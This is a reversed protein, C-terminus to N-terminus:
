NNINSATTEKTGCYGDRTPTDDIRESGRQRRPASIAAEGRRVSNSGGTQRLRSSDALIFFNSVFPVTHFYRLPQGPVVTVNLANNNVLSLNEKRQIPKKTLVYYKFHKSDKRSTQTQALFSCVKNLINMGSLCFSRPCM